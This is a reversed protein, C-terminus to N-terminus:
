DPRGTGSFLQQGRALIDNLAQVFHDTGEALETGVQEVYEEWSKEIEEEFAEALTGTERAEEYRAPHYTIMDSVLVRALRRARDTPDRRGFRAAAASLTGAVGEEPPGSDTMPDDMEPSSPRPGGSPSADPSEAAAATGSPEVEEEAVDPASGAPEPPSPAVAPAPDGPRDSVGPDTIATPFDIRFVRSCNSCIVPIGERPLRRPDIDFRTGCSPCEVSHPRFTM